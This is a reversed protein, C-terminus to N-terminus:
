IEFHGVDVFSHWRGGWTLGVSEGLPGLQDWVWRPVDDRRWGLM